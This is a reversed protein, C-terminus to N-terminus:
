IQQVEINLKMMFNILASTYQNQSLTKNSLNLQDLKIIIMIIIM